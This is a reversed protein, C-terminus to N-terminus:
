TDVLKGHVPHIFEDPADPYKEAFEEDSMNCFDCLMQLCYEISNKDMM